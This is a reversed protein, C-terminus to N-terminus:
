KEINNEKSINELQQICYGFYYKKNGEEWLDTDYLGTAYHYPYEFDKFEESIISEVLKNYGAITVFGCMDGFKFYNKDSYMPHNNTHLIKLESNIFNTIMEIKKSLKDEATQLDVISRSNKLDIIYMRYKGSQQAKEFMDKYEFYSM